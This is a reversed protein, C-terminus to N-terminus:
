WSKPVELVQERRLHAPWELPDAGSRASLNLDSNDGLQKVYCPIDHRACQAVIDEVWESRCERANKGSEGGVIVWQWWDGDLLDIPGLLPEISLGFRCIARDPGTLFRYPMHDLARLSLNYSDQDCVSFLTIANRLMAESM